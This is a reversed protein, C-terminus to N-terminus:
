LIQQRDKRIAFVEKSVPDQVGIFHKEKTLQRFHLEVSRAGETPFEDFFGFDIRARQYDRWFATLPLHRRKDALL